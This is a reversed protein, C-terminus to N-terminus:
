ESHVRQSILVGGLMVASLKQAKKRVARRAMLWRKRKLWDGFTPM